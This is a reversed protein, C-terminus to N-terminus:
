ALFYYSSIFKVNIRIAEKLTATLWSSQKAEVVQLRVPGTIRNGNRSFFWGSFQPYGPNSSEQVSFFSVMSSSGFETDTMTLVIM